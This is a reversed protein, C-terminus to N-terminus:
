TGQFDHYFDQWLEAAMGLLESEEILHHSYSQTNTQIEEATMFEGQCFNIEGEDKLPLIYLYVIDHDTHKLKYKVSFRPQESTHIHSGYREKLKQASKESVSAHQFQEEIPIDLLYEGTQSSRRPVVYIKGNCVPAIRIIPMKTPSDKLTKKM